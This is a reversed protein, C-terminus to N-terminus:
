ETPRKTKLDVELTVQPSDAQLIMGTKSPRVAIEDQLQQRNVRGFLCNSEPNFSFQNKGDCVELAYGIAFSDNINLQRELTLGALLSHAEDHSIRFKLQEDQIRIYM